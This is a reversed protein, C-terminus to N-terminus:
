TVKRAYQLAAAGSYADTTQKGEKAIVAEAVRRSVLNDESIVAEVWFAKIGNRGLGNKLEAIGAAVIAKAFGKGRCQPPVAYGVQFTPLGDIPEVPTFIAMAEVVKSPSIRVYTLRPQGQPRDMYVAIKPDVSGPQVEIEGDLLAQQFSVMGDTPDIMAPLLSEEIQM